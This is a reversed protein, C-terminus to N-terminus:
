NFTIIIPKENQTVAEEPKTELLPKYKKSELKCLKSLKSLFHKIM